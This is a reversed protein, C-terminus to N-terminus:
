NERDKKVIDDYQKKYRYFTPKTLGLERMLAFPKIEGKVVREYAKKFEEFEMAKPRGYENWEGRNKKAQIGEKQGRKKREMEERAMIAYLEILVDNINSLILAVTNTDYHEFSQLTAPIELIMIRIQREKLFRLERLIDQKDRGLRDLEAVILTDGERIVNNKLKLYQPRDFSKGIQQDTYIRELIIGERQCFDEIEHVGKNLDHNKATTRHYAYYKGM